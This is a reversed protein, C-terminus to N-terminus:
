PLRKQNIRHSALSIRGDFDVDKGYFIQSSL